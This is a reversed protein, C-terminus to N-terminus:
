ARSLREIEAGVTARSAQVLSLNGIVELDPRLLWAREVGAVVLAGPRSVPHGHGYDVRLFSGRLREAAQDAAFAEPLSSGPAGAGPAMLGLSEVGPPWRFGSVLRAPVSAAAAAEVALGVKFFALARDVVTALSAEEALAYAPAEGLRQRVIRGAHFHFDESEAAGALTRSLRLTLEPEAVAAALRELAPALRLGGAAAVLLDREALSQGGASIRARAEDASAPAQRQGILMRLALDWDGLQAVAAAAEDVTLGIEGGNGADEAM